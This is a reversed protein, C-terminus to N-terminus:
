DVKIRKPKTTEDYTYPSETYLPLPQKTEEDVEKQDFMGLYKAEMQFCSLATKIDGTALAKKTLERVDAIVDEASRIQATQQRRKEESILQLMKRDKLLNSGTVAASRPSYGAKIASDGVKGTQAYYKAFKRQQLTYEPARTHPDSVSDLKDIGLQKALSTIQALAERSIAIYPNPIPKNSTKDRLLAGMSKIRREAEEYRDSAACYAKLLIEKDPSLDGLQSKLVDYTM